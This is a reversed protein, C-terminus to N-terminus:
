FDLEKYYPKKVHLCKKLHNLYDNNAMTKARNEQYENRTKCEDCEVIWKLRITM